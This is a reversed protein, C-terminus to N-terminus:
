PSAGSFFMTKLGQASSKSWSPLAFCWSDPDHEAVLSSIMASAPQGRSCGQSSALLEPEPCGARARLHGGVVDVLGHRPQAEREISTSMGPRHQAYVYAWSMALKLKVRRIDPLPSLRCFLHCLFVGVKTGAQVQGAWPHRASCGLCAIDASFLQIVHRTQSHGYRLSISRVMGLLVTILSGDTM